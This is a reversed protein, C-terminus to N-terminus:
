KGLSAYITDITKIPDNSETISRGMVIFDAGADIAFKPTSVRKQDHVDDDPMRIGPCIIKLDNGVISRVQEADGASCVVGYCGARAALDAMTKVADIVKGRYGIEAIDGDNLSTLTTVALIGPGDEYQKVALVAAKLMAMGGAAHVTTMMPLPVTASAKKPILCLQHLAQSVTAPIDHLKLDLFTPTSGMNLSAYGAPGHSYFFELGLKIAGVSSGYFDFAKQAISVDPTDVALIIPKYM